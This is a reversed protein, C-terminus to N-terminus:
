IVFDDFQIKEHRAMNVKYKQNQKLYLHYDFQRNVVLTAGSHLGASLAIIKGAVHFFPQVVM